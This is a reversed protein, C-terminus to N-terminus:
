KVFSLLIYHKKLKGIQKESLPYFSIIKGAGNHGFFSLWTVSGDHFRFLFNLPCIIKKVEYEEKEVPRSKGYGILIKTVYVKM